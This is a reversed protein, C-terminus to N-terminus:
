FTFGVTMEEFAPAAGMRVLHRYLGWPTLAPCRVGILGAIVPACWGFFPAARGERERDWALVVTLAGGFWALVGAFEEPTLLDIQLGSWLPDVFVWREASADWKWALVHRFGPRTFVDWWNRGCGPMRDVFAVYWMM